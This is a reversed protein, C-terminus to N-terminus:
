IKLMLAILRRPPSPQSASSAPSPQAATKQIRYETNQMRYETNQIRYETNQIRYETKQIRYELSMQSEYPSMKSWGPEDPIPKSCRGGDSSMQSCFNCYREALIWFEM